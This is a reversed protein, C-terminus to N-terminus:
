RPGNTVKLLDEEGKYADTMWHSNPRQNPLCSSNGYRWLKDTFFTAEPTTSLKLELKWNELCCIGQLNYVNKM